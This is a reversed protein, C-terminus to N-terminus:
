KKRFAKDLKEKVDRSKVRTSLAAAAQKMNKSYPMSLRDFMLLGDVLRAALQPNSSDFGAIQDAFLEYGSGDQRHFANPNERMLTGFVSRVRNPNPEYAPHKLLSEIRKLPEPLDSGAEIAFWKDLVLPDNSFRNFFQQLAQNREECLHDRLANLGGMALTMNKSASRNLAIKRVRDMGLEALYGLALNSLRRRARNEPLFEAPEWQAWVSMPGTLAQAIRQRLRKRAAALQLPDLPEFQAALEYHSPTSLIEALLAMDEPPKAAILQFGHMLTEGYKGPAHDLEEQLARLLLSQAAQWRQFGDSEHLLLTSLADPSYDFNLKVPASFGRLFAPVPPVDLDSFELTLQESELLIMDPRLMRGADDVRSLDKGDPDRLGFAIPIPVSRKDPQDASPPTYQKITLSYKRTQADFQESVDIRPTGSQSYWQRFGDLSRGSSNELAALLDEVTAASGDHTNLYAQVGAIFTQEGLLGHLMRLIEAGKEYVTATYLNNVEAYSEPRVPHATPGADETFQMARLMRVQSIRTADPSGQDGSFCQDRFVTLGEKLSLQFWDRCTVRNGTWNHFYEHAIVSEIGDYDDDTATEASALVFRANFLNLGKNEMAGMNFARAAVVMYTDLDYELGYSFEDWCMAKQLSVIAHRARDENGHDVFFHLAVRRGSTTVHEAEVKALDGAVMAFLYSPKPHPDRWVAFHRGHALEGSEICDGNALLLPYKSKDAEMRVQYRSLVDPRDLAYTIRSFGEPECQTCLMPGSRYWGELATNSEPDLETIVELQFQDPVQPILLQNESIQYDNGHLRRGDLDIALLTLDRGNLRLEAAPDAGPRRRLRLTSKVTTLDSIHIDLHTQDLMFDPAKYDKRFIVTPFAKFSNLPIRRVPAFSLELRM